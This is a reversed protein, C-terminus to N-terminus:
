PSAGKSVIGNTVVTTTWADTLNQEVVYIHQTGFDTKGVVKTLTIDHAFPGAWLLNYTANTSIFNFTVYDTLNTIVDVDNTGLTIGGGFTIRGTATDAEDSRLFQSSDLNDLTEANIGVKVGDIYEDGVVFSVGIVLAAFFMVLKKM